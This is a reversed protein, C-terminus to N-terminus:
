NNLFGAFFSSANDELAELYYGGEQVILTPLNLSAVIQGLKKFGASSVRVLSQPDKEFIDFGLSYVLVDPQYKNIAKVAIALKEFFVAESSGHPVPLNLNYGLGQATGQEDEYGAVVPYFNTPDGHTSIYYIDDRAYFIEQIGQGHHMDTDLIMVKRYKQRLMQAAVAANNLYCFGGASDIRAHHGPPRCIAYAKQEGALIAQTAEICSQASWYIAEWSGKGIPASGDAIHYAAKALIGRKANPERVFINSIVEDGWDAPMKKWEDYATALFTIYDKSHVAEIAAYGNDQPEIVEFGLQKAIHVLHEVRAPIEQPIRMAGRSFYTKPYHLLQKPHFFAKM